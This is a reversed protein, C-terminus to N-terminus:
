PRSGPDLVAHSREVDEAMQAMLEDITGFKGMGRLRDVFDVAVEEGYLELDSRDLVYAEVTRVPVDDFTPNTGVSIAAPLRHDPHDEPLERQFWGAYVGDAPVLGVSDTGLNATPYGLGRGRHHGHVVTGSVRHARGLIDAADAVRGAHLLERVRSSSWRRRTAGAGAAHPGASGGPDTNGPEADSVDDLAVVDFGHEAGLRRLTTVDGSNHVGFRTDHGVVVADAGLGQVFVRVIFEEATWSALEHTFEMVLAADLGTRALLELRHELGTLAEPAREPHLVAVPHPDFTVAVSQPGQAPVAIKAALVGSDNLGFEHDAREEAERVVTELVAHHGRHVGDFNGLAVVSPGFGAPIQSLDTWRLM